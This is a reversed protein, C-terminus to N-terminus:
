APHSSSAAAPAPSLAGREIVWRARAPAHVDAQDLWLVAAGASATEAALAAVLAAADAALGTTPADLVMVRPGACWACAVHLVQHEGGSLLEARVDRRGALLPLRALAAGAREGGALALAEAVTCGAIRTGDAVTGSLGQRRRASPPGTLERGAILVTGATPAARGCLIAALLTKGADAPGTIVTVEGSAVSFSVDDLLVGADSEMRLGTVELAATM